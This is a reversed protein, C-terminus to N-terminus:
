KVVIEGFKCATKVLPGNGELHRNFRSHHLRFILGVGPRGAMDYEGYFIFSPAETGDPASAGKDIISAGCKVHFAITPIIQTSFKSAPYTHFPPPSISCHSVRNMLSWKMRERLKFEVRNTARDKPATMKIPVSSSARGMEARDPSLWPIKLARKVAVDAVQTVPSTTASVAMVQDPKPCATMRSIIWIPPRPKIVMIVTTDRSAWRFIPSLSRSSITDM